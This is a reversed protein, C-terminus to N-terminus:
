IVKATIEHVSRPERLGCLHSSNSSLFAKHYIKATIRTRGRSAIARDNHGCALLRLADIEKDSLGRKAKKEERMHEMEEESLDMLDVRSLAGVKRKIEYVYTRTSRLSIGLM